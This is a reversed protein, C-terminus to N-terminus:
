KRHEMFKRGIRHGEDLGSFYADAAATGLAYPMPKPMPKAVVRFAIAALVGRKYEPSRLDRHRDFAASYLVDVSEANPERGTHLEGKLSFIEPSLEDTM